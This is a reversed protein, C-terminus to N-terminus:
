VDGDQIIRIYQATKNGTRRDVRVVEVRSHQLANRGFRGALTVLYVLPDHLTVAIAVEPDIEQVEFALHINNPPAEITDDQDLIIQNDVLQGTSLRGDVFALFALVREAWELSDAFRAQEVASHDRGLPSNAIDISGSVM